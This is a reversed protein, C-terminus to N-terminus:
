PPWPTPRSSPSALAEEPVSLRPFFLSVAFAAMAIGVVGWFVRSLGADLVGSLHALLEADLGRGRGPGLLASLAGDPLSADALLRASLVAGLAGVALAGGLTRFLLTSATAVGRQEWGVSSQVAVLLTTNAFGLGLGLLTSTARPTGLAASERMMVALAVAAALSLGTGLRVLPRYGVRPLIRGTIASAIPWGIAMPAIALGADTPSGRLVGQVYLPLFTTTAILVGGILAGSINSVAIVRRRLLALPLVPEAARREVILFCGLAVAAVGFAASQVGGGSGLLVAVICAGLLLAGALDLQHKRPAVRERLAVLLVMASALGFPINIFFVWRWSLLRVILGGLLPGTLGAIGWVGGFWGQIRARGAPGYLDGLITMAMPQVGGAGVGQVTRAIILQTMSQSFGSAMSGLLFLTIGLLMVPRRGYLDALKGLMPVTVTSAVIYATFVWAYHEIGGLDAIVTPMATSVVTIEMAAMFTVLLLAIVTLIRRTRQVRARTEQNQARPL